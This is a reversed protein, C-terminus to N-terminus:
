SQKCVRWYSFTTIFRCSHVQAGLWALICTETTSCLRVMLCHYKTMRLWCITLADLQHNVYVGVYRGDHAFMPTKM